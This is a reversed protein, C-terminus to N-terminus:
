FGMELGLRASMPPQYRFAQGYTPNIWQTVGNVDVYGYAQDVDVPKRRSAIHFVDLILRARWLAVFPLEYTFRASLDWIAPTRGASGRPSLFMVGQDTYMYESLPTGSEAIFSIGASLKSLFRYSGSFKFVHTRDNSVLGTANRRATNIDNFASSNNPFSTHYVADFVGGYNGYDRSLVYSALFNFHEDQHREITFILAKYDRQPKPWGSLIGEGPNGLAYRGESAVYADDIAERLTRYLGQISVRFTKGLAREYGLSFEDSYQGRLGQTGPSITFPGGSVTDAGSRSVRPDQSFSISYSNGQDSYNNVSQFLAFEQSFRGYSGFIKQSGDDSPLYTFGVRPQIPTTVRQAVAGNSGVISQGDWRIGAHINVNRLVQWSDQVYLSLLNDHVTEYGKSVYQVYYATDYRDIEDNAYQNNTGNVRYEVGLKLTHAGALISSALQATTSSRFSDWNSPPGGSWVNDLHDIFFTEARGVQTSPDGTSRYNVRAISADILTNRGLTYTGSLSLNIGGDRVDMLYSDPRTLGSPPIGGTPYVASESAPDGTATLTAHFRESASWTLKSAFSHVLRSDSYIGYGPVDVDRRVFTPNYAVFFWLEDRIIPGGIGFGVDYNSFGGNAPDSLGVLRNTAFRNSTYFGFASGHIENTGSYTIVNLIGGLASRSDAEYGGAKVEIERIFNYPLNTGSTGMLPDTVEVGDVFYKNEFGTAGGINVADGFSSANSQPLLSIMSKYDRDVPLNEFDVPRLNSGYDTSVPDIAPRQGSIVLEPMDLTRQRLRVEGVSTTKGLQILVDEVVVSQYATHSLRLSVVGPPLGPIIGIGRNDTSTGRVGQVNKGTVVANVGTVPEGLTDIVAFQLDGTTRQACVPSHTFLLVTISVFYFVARGARDSTQM